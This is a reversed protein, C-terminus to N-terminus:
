KRGKGRKQKRSTQPLKARRQTKTRKQIGRSLNKAKKMLARTNKNELEKKRRGPGGLDSAPPPIESERPGVEKNLGQGRPLHYPSDFFKNVGV